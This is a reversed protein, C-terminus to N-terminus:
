ANQGWEVSNDTEKKKIPQVEKYTRSKLGKDYIHKTNTM